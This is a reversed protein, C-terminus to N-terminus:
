VVSKRDPRAQGARIANAMKEKTKQAAVQMAMPQIEDRHIVQYATMVDVGCDPGTLRAFDPNQLEKQLDFNPFVQKVREGQRVLGEIHRNIQERAQIERMARQAEDREREIQHMQKVADVSMGRQYAEEEYLKDDDQVAGILGDLDDASKGYQKALAELVPGLKTLKEEAGKANKLRERLIAQVDADFESKYAGNRIDAWEKARDEVQNRGSADDKGAEEKKLNEQPQRGYRVGELPNRKSRATEPAADGQVNVGPQGADAAGGTGGGNDDELLKWTLMKWTKLVM